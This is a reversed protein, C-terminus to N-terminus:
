NAYKIHMSLEVVAEALVEGNFMVELHANDSGFRRSLSFGIHLLNKSEGCQLM